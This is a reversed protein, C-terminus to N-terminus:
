AQLGNVPPRSPIVADHNKVYAEYLNGFWDPPVWWSDPAGTMSLHSNFDSRVHAPVAMDQMLHLLYGLSLFTDAFAANREAQTTATLANFFKERVHDWDQLNGTSTSRRRDPAEYGTAWSVASYKSAWKGGDNLSSSCWGSVYFPDDVMFANTWPISNLPNHFHNSARCKPDDELQAGDQLMVLINKGPIFM